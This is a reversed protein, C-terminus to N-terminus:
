APSNDASPRRSPIRQWHGMQDYQRTIVLWIMWLLRGVNKGMSLHSREHSIKVPSHFRCIGWTSADWIDVDLFGSLSKVQKVASQEQSSKIINVRYGPELVLNVELGSKVYIKSLVQLAYIEDIQGRRPNRSGGGQVDADPQSIACDRGLSYGRGWDFYQRSLRAPIQVFVAHLFM